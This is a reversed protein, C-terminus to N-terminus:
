LSVRLVVSFRQDNPEVDPPPAQDHLYEHEVVLSLADTLPTSLSNSMEVLYDGFDTMHPQWFTVHQFTAGSGLTHDVKLRASWRAVSSVEPIGAGPELRLDEHDLLAALSYSAKLSGQRLFTWKAGAGGHVKMDIRRLEDRSASIFAFPSWEADPRWDFKLTARQDNAITREESRGYRALGSLELEYLETNVRTVSGGARMVAFSSNGTSGNIGLEIRSSWVDPAQQFGAVSAPRLLACALSALLVSQFRM